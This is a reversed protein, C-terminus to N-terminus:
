IDDRAPCYMIIAARQQAVVVACAATIPHGLSRRANYVTQANTHAACFAAKFPHLFEWLCQRELRKACRRLVSGGITRSGHREGFMGRADNCTMRFTEM